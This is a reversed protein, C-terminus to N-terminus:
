IDESLIGIRITYGAKENKLIELHAIWDRGEKSTDELDINFVWEEKSPDLDFDPLSLHEKALIDRIIILTNYPNFTGDFVQVYDSLTKNLTFLRKILKNSQEPSPSEVEKKKVEEKVQAEEVIRTTNISPKNEPSPEEDEEKEDEDDEEEEKTGKSITYFGIEDKPYGPEPDASPPPTEEESVDDEDWDKLPDTEEEKEEPEEESENEEKSEVKETSTIDIWDEEPIEYEEEKDDVVEEEEGENEDENEEEEEETDTETEDVDSDIKKEVEDTETLFKIYNSKM